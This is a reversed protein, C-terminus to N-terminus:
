VIGQRMDWELMYAVMAPRPLASRISRFMALHTELAGIPASQRQLEALFTMIKKKRPFFFGLQELVDLRFVIYDALISALFLYNLGAQETIDPHPIITILLACCFFLHDAAATCQTARTVTIDAREEALAAQL